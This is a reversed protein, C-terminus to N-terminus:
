RALLASMTIISGLTLYATYDNVSGTHVVDHAGMKRAAEVQAERKVVAIVNCGMAQAVHVFM